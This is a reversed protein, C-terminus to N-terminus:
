SKGPKSTFGHHALEIEETLPDGSSVAFRPGTWKVAFVGELNWSRLENGAADIATIAGTSRTVKNGNATFGTGATKNVWAFLADSDCVGRKLVIHPWTMHGPLQHVFGNEGGERYTAVDISVELGSVESFVGIQEDDVSFLFASSTPIEGRFGDISM